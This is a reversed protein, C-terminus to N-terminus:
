HYKRDLFTELVVERQAGSIEWDVKVEVYTVVADVGNQSVTFEPDVTTSVKYRGDVVYPQFGTSYVFDKLLGEHSSRNIFNAHKVTEIQRKAISFARLRDETYKTATVGQMFLNFVPLFVAALIAIAVLVEVLSLARASKKAM